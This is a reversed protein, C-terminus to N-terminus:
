TPKTPKPKKFCTKTHPGHQGGAEEAETEGKSLGCVWMVTGLRSNDANGKKGKPEKVLLLWAAKKLKWSADLLHRCHIAMTVLLGCLRLGREWGALAGSCPSHKEMYHREKKKLEIEGNLISLVLRWLRDSDGSELFRRMWLHSKSPHLLTYVFLEWRFACRLVCVPVAGTPKETPTLPLSFLCSVRDNTLSQCIKFKTREKQRTYM